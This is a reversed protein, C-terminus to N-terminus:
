IDRRSIDIHMHDHHGKVRWLVHFGQARVIPALQDFMKPEQAANPWNVDIAGSNDHKYHWGTALHAGPRPPDGLAKNKGVQFGKQRLTKGLAILDAVSKGGGGVGNAKDLGDQMAPTLGGSPPPTFSETPDVSSTTRSLVERAAETDATILAVSLDRLDGGIENIRRGRTAAAILVLGVIILVYAFTNM